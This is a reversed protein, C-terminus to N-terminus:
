HIIKKLLYINIKSPTLKLDFDVINGTCQLDLKDNFKKQVLEQLPWIIKGVMENKNKSYSSAPLKSNNVYWWTNELLVKITEVTGSQTLIENHNTLQNNIYIKGDICDFVIGNEVNELIKRHNGIIKKWSESGYCDMIIDGDKIYQSFYWKDIYQEIKMHEESIGDEWSLYQLNVTTYWKNHLSNIMKEITIRSKWPKTICLFTWWPKVSSIPILWLREDEFVMNEKFSTTIDKKIDFYGEIFTEYWCLKELINFYRDGNSEENPNIMVNKAAQFFILYLFNITDMFLYPNKKEMNYEKMIKNYEEQAKFYIETGYFENFCSGFNIISYESTKKHNLHTHWLCISNECQTIKPYKKELYEHNGFWIWINGNNIAATFLITGNIDKKPISVITELMDKATTYTNKCEKTKIFWTYDSLQEITIKESIIYIMFSLLLTGVSVIATGTGRENESFITINIWKTYGLELLKEKINKELKESMKKDRYTEIDKTEFKKTTNSFQTITKIKIIEDNRKNIGIYCKTPMKQAIKEKIGELHAINGRNIVQPSSVILNNKTFFDEYEKPFLKQLNESNMIMREGMIYTM